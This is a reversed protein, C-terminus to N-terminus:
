KTSKTTAAEKATEPKEATENILGIGLRVKREIEAMIQPEKLLFERANERGQGIRNEGYSYWAGSKNIISLESAMDLICGAKSIGLGYIIDFEAEKFPPAV